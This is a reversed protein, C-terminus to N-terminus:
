ANLEMSFACLAGDGGRVLRGFPAGPGERLISSPVFHAAAPDAMEISASLLLPLSSRM